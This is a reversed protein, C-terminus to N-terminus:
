DPGLYFHACGLAAEFGDATPALPRDPWDSFQQARYEVAYITGGGGPDDTVWLAGVNSMGRGEIQGGVFYTHEFDGPDGPYFDHLSDDSEVIYVEHLSVGGSIPLGIDPTATLRTEIAAVLAAAAPICRGVAEQSPLASEQPSPPSPSPTPNNCGVAVTLAAIVVVRGMTVSLM